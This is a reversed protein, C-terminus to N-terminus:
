PGGFALAPDIGVTRRLGAISAILGIVVAIVPLLVFALTPIDCRMPFLPGLLVSLVGGILAALVAVVIAQAALGILISRTAVGVAKFVAFDRTRELASMYIMSGVILAAVVWLLYAMLSIAQKAGSLARVLDEVAGARDITRFGAPITEPTGRIGISSILHQGSFLLQQAGAVTLFVNPQRALATSDEVLGVIRMTRSGIELDQGINRRMTTSVVIEGPTSPARGSSLAPMGPGRDPVGFVNVNRPSGRNPVTTSGYVLPAAVSVGPLQAVAAVETDAFPASGLFPGPAGEKIVYQDFGLSDVTREAEVDFGNALGTLVLTCAFVLGTGVIAIAFRRRRWQLDRLAAILM